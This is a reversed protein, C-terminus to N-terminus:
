DALGTVDEAEKDPLGFDALTRHVPAPRTHRAVLDRTGVIGLQEFLFVFKDELQQRASARFEDDLGWLQAKFAGIAQKRTKYLFQEETDKPKREGAQNERLWAYVENRLGDPMLDYVLNQFGTALHVECATAEAFKSFASEPLTSAGHQVAGALRYEERAVQSLRGLTDFDVAVNAITGDALVVGGHSTGTQVSIKSIGIPPSGLRALAAAYGEMFARLEEETSNKGGVEGIEGGVSITIGAPEHARIFATLEACLRANLEQQEAVTGRALDVLTSTDIDINFFGAQLAELALDRVTGFEKDPDAAYKKANVQFHDGQLFVPGRHGERIAAALVVATYEAPRQDTYGIESRAIEFILAGADLRQAARFVARASDYAMMRLNIAPVTFNVPTDGRGRAFYLDNISAPTIGLALATEWILWRAAARARDDGFVAEHVLADLGDGRLGPEDLVQVQGDNVTLARSLAPPLQLRAANAM